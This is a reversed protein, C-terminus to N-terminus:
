MNFNNPNVYPVGPVIKKFVALQGAPALNRYVPARHGTEFAAKTAANMGKAAKRMKKTIKM